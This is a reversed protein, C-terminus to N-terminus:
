AIYSFDHFFVGQCFRNVAEIVSQVQHQGFSTIDFFHFEGKLREFLNMVENVGTVHSAGTKWVLSVKRLWAASAPAM